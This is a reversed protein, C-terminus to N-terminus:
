HSKVPTHPRFHKKNIVSGQGRFAASYVNDLVRNLFICNSAMNMDANLQVPIHHWWWPFGDVRTVSSVVVGLMLLVAIRIRRGIQM